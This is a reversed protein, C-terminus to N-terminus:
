LIPCTQVAFGLPLIQKYTFYASVAKQSQVGYTHIVYKAIYKNNNQDRMEFQVEGTTTNVARTVQSVQTNFAVNLNLRRHYDSLYQLMTERFLSLCPVNAVVPLM